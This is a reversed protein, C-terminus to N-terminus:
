DVDDSGLFCGEYNVTTESKVADISLKIRCDGAEMLKEDHTVLIVQSVGTESKISNMLERLKDVREPSFGITPEDMIMTSDRLEANLARVVKNLALRYALGLATLQAGSPQTIEAESGSVRVKVVPSFDTKVSAEVVEQDELLKTFYEQFYSGFIEYAMVRVSREISEVVGYLSELLFGRFRNLAEKRRELRKLEEFGKFYNALDDELRKIQQEIEGLQRHLGVEEVRIKSLHDNLRMFENELRKREDILREKNARVEIERSVEARLKLIDEYLESARMLENVVNEVARLEEQLGRQRNLLSSRLKKFEERRANLENVRSSLEELSRRSANLREVLLKEKLDEEEVERDTEQLLLAGHEHPIPQRCTPCVGQEVMRRTEERKRLLDVKRSELNKVEAELRAIETTLLREDERLRVLEAEDRDMTSDLSRLEEDLSSLEGKLEDRRGNFNVLLEAIGEPGLVNYKSLVGGLATERDRLESEKGKLIKLEMELEGVERNLQDIKARLDNMATELSERRRGVDELKMDLEKREQMLRGIEAKMEDPNRDELRARCQNIDRELLDLERGFTSSRGKALKEINRLTIVYKDIGLARDVLERRQAEDIALVQYINFQPVYIVNHFISLKRSEKSSEHLGLEDLVRKRLDLARYVNSRKLRLGQDGVEYVALRGGEDSYGKLSREVLLLKGGHELLVKVVGSPSGVRLLDEGRPNIFGEVLDSGRQGPPQGFLAFNIGLLISTKGSGNDGYIVTVGSRPFVITKDVYSRINKLRVGLIRM